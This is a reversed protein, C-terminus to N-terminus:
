FWIETQAGFQWQGGTFGDSGFADDAAYDNLASDWDTYSAFVRIEPRQFFGGVEPKFTPAVTFKYFDGDVANRDLYGEPELDMTQWTGEFALEFNSTIERVLRMNLTLWRYDDDEVYRDQSAEAFIAPALRWNESLYTTGYIALRLAQADDQLNADGGLVKVEAGLRAGYLLAVKFFGDSLGFFSDGHYALMTQVGSNAPAEGGGGVGDDRNRPASIGNLMWQWNGVFNNVTGIYVEVDGSEEEFDRAYLSFNARWADAMQVDYIGAGTGALFVVDSDLWHIDFNDRDFRKGAWITSNEFAGSFSPLHSLEVFVNRTNLNGVDATWDNNSELSDAIMATFRTRTGNSAISRHTLYAEYYTDPENGLRGVAGGVSGAPTSFPGGVGRRGEDNSLIGSRAYGNFAFGTEEREQIERELRDMREALSDDSQASALMPLCAVTGAVFGIVPLIIHKRTLM